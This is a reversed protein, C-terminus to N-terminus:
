LKGVKRRGGKPKKSLGRWRSLPHVPKEELQALSGSSSSAIPISVIFFEYNFKLILKDLIMSEPSCEVKARLTGLWLGATKFWDIEVNRLLM